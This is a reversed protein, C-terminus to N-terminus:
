LHSVTFIYPVKVNCLSFSVHPQAVPDNCLVGLYKDNISVCVYVDNSLFAGM